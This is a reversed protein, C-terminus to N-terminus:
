RGSWVGEKRLTAAVEDVAERAMGVAWDIDKETIVFPPSFAITDALPLARTILGRARAAEAIRPGVKLAPAFPEPPRRSAVFEVAGILGQGRIEGVLPHDRFAEQLKRHLHAGRMGAQDVLNDRDLLDLNALAVAAGIPHSSYTYGHGFAGFKSGAECLTEWVQESV